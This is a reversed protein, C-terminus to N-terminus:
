TKYRNILPTDYGEKIQELKYNYCFKFLLKTLWPGEKVKDLVNRHIRDM